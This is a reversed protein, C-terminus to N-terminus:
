TYVLIIRIGSIRPTWYLSIRNRNLLLTTWWTPSSHKPKRSIYHSVLKTNGLYSIGKNANIEARDRAGAGFYQLFVM